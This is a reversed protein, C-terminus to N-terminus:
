YEIGRRALLGDDYYHKVKKMETVLDARARLEEPADRGTMVLETKDNRADLLLHVEDISICGHAMGAMVEDLVLLDADCDNLISVAKVFLPCPAACPTGCRGESCQIVTIGLKKASEHEGCQWAKQFQIVFVKGGYGATRMALGFAATSKGKGNGTYIQVRSKEKDEI